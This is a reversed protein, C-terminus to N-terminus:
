GCRCGLPPLFSLSKPAHSSIPMMNRTAHGTPRIRSILFSASLGCLILFAAEVVAAWMRALAWSCCVRWVACVWCVARFCLATLFTVWVGWGEAPPALASFIM